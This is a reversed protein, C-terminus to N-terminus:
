YDNRQPFKDTKTQPSEPTLKTLTHICVIIKYKLTYFGLVIFRSISLVYKLFNDEDRDFNHGSHMEVNFTVALVKILYLSHM